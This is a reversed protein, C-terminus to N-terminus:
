ASFVTPIETILDSSNQVAVLSKTCSSVINKVTEHATKFQPYARRVKVLEFFITTSAYAPVAEVFGIFPDATLNEALAIARSNMEISIENGFEVVLASEGLPKFIPLQKSM